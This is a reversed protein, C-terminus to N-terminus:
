IKLLQLACEMRPSNALFVRFVGGHRAKAASWRPAACTTARWGSAARSATPRATRRWGACSRSCPTTARTIVPIQAETMAVSCRAVPAFIQPAASLRRARAAGGPPPRATARTAPLATNRTSCRVELCWRDRHVKALISAASIAPVVRRGQRHGRGCTWHPCATAMWWFRRRSSACARVARAHGAHHGAPHQATSKKWRAEAVSCCLGQRPNRRLAKRAAATLKKSDALGSSDPAPRGPHGGGRGGARGAAGARGRGRRGGPRASGLAPPRSLACSNKRSRM